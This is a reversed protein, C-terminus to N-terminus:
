KIPKEYGEEYCQDVQAYGDKDDETLSLYKSDTDGADTSKVRKGLFQDDHSIQLYNRPKSGDKAGSDDVMQLYDPHPRGIDNM